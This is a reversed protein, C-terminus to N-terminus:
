KHARESIMKILIVIGGVALVLWFAAVNTPVVRDHGGSRLFLAFRGLRSPMLFRLAVAIAFVVVSFLVWKRM